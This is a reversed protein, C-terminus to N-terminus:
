GNDTMKIIHITEAGFSIPHKFASSLVTKEENNLKNQCTKDAFHAFLYLIARNGDIIKDYMDSVTCGPVMLYRFTKELLTYCTVTWICDTQIAVWSPFFTSDLSFINCSYQVVFTFYRFHGHQSLTSSEGGGGGGWGGSYIGIFCNHLPTLGVKHHKLSLHGVNLIEVLLNRKHQWKKTRQKTEREADKNFVLFLWMIGIMLIHLTFLFHLPM